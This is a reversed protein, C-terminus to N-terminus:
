EGNSTMLERVFVCVSSLSKGSNTPIACVYEGECAGREIEFLLLLLTDISFSQEAIPIAVVESKTEENGRV